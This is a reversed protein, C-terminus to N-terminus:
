GGPQRQPREQLVVRATFAQGNRLASLEVTSGPALAAERTRLDILNGITEGNVALVIDGPRLDAAEAPGDPYIKWVAV